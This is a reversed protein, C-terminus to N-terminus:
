VIRLFGEGSGHSDDNTCDTDHTQDMVVQEEEEQIDESPSIDYVLDCEGTLCDLSVKVKYSRGPSSPGGRQTGDKLPPFKRSGDGNQRTRGRDPM